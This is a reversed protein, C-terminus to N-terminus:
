SPAGEAQEAVPITGPFQVVTKRATPGDAIIRGDRLTIM